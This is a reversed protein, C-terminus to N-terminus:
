DLTRVIKNLMALSKDLKYSDSKCIDIWKNVLVTSDNASLKSFVRQCFLLDIANELLGSGGDTKEVSNIYKLSTIVVRPSIVFKEIDSYDKNRAELESVTELTAENLKKAIEIFCSQYTGLEIGTTAVKIIEVLDPRQLTVKSARDLVRGSVANGSEDENMTGIFKINRLSYRNKYNQFFQKSIAELKEVIKPPMSDEESKILNDLATKLEEKDDYLILDDGSEMKSIFECFWNEVPALNIEDFIVYHTNNQNVDKNAERILNIFGNKDPKYANQTSSYFGYLVSPETFLPTISIITYRSNDDGTMYKVYAKSLASKGTGSYGALITLYNSDICAHFNILDIDSFWLGENVLYNKFNTLNFKVPKVLCRILVEQYNNSFAVKVLEIPIALLETDTDIKLIIIPVGVEAKFTYTEVHTGGRKVYISGDESYVTSWDSYNYFLIYSNYEKATCNDLMKVICKNNEVDKVLIYWTDNVLNRCALKFDVKVIEEQSDTIQIQKIRKLAEYESRLAYPMDHGNVTIDNDRNHILFYENYGM